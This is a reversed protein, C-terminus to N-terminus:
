TSYTSNLFKGRMKNCILTTSYGRRSSLTDKVCQMVHYTKSVKEEPDNVMMHTYFKDIHSHLIGPNVFKCRRFFTKRTYTTLQNIEEKTLSSYKKGYHKHQASIDIVVNENRSSSTHRINNTSYKNEDTENDEELNNRQDNLTINKNLDVPIDDGDSNNNDDDENGSLSNEDDSDHVQTNITPNKNILRPTVTLVIKEQQLQDFKLKKRSNTDDINRKQNNHNQQNKSKNRPSVRLSPSHYCQQSTNNNNYNNSNINTTNKSQYNKNHNNKKNRFPSQAM